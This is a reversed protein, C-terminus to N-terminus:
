RAGRLHKPRAEDRSDVGFVDLGFGPLEIAKAKAPKTGAAFPVGTAIVKANKLGHEIRYRNAKVTLELLGELRTIGTPGERLAATGSLCWRMMGISFSKDDM